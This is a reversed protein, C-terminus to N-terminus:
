SNVQAMKNLKQFAKNLSKSPIVGLNKRFDKIFHTQDYYGYNLYNLAPKEQLINTKYFHKFRIINLFKKPSIGFFIKFKRQFHRISLCHLQALEQISIQGNVKLISSLFYSALDDNDDSKRNKLQNLLTESLLKIISNEDVVSKLTFDLYSLWNVGFDNVSENTNLINGLHNGFLNYAGVPNLKLGILHCQNIRNVLVTKTQIGIVCSKNIVVSPIKTDLYQKKYAGRKVFIIEPYGDPILLDHESEVESSKMIWVYKVYKELGNKLYFRQYNLEKNNM